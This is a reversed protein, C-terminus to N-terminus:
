GRRQVDEIGLRQNCHRALAFLYDSLRNLYILPQRLHVPPQEGVPLAAIVRREARRCVTRAVHAMAASLHGGPLLFGRLEPLAEDMRDIAAELGRCHTADIRPLRELQPSDPSTALLAGLTSLESQRERIEDVLDDHDSPLAAAVAGLVSSLEDVEGYADVLPHDKGVREGSFLSTQGGDGGGTYLKM